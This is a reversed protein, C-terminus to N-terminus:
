SRAQEILVAYSYTACLLAHFPEFCRGSGSGPVGDVMWM